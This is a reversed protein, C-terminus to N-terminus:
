SERGALEAPAEYVPLDRGTLDYDIPVVFGTWVRKPYSMVQVMDRQNGGLMFYREGDRSRGVIFAVHGGGKREKIGIAGYVPSDIRKGFKLWEKARYARPVPPINHRKLVWAVYSGCWANQGGSDDTGWFGSAKFYEMIRPNSDHMGRREAVGIEAIATSMWPARTSEDPIATEPVVSAAPEVSRAALRAATLATFERLGSVHAAGRHQTPRFGGGSSPRRHGGPVLM